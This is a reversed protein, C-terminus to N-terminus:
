TWLYFNSLVTHVVSKILCLYSLLTLLCIRPPAMKSKSTHNVLNKRSESESIRCVLVNWNLNGVPFESIGVAWDFHFVGNSKAGVVTVQNTERCIFTRDVEATYHVVPPCVIKMLIHSLLAEM